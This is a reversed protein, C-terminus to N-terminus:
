NGSNKSWRARQSPARRWMVFACVTGAGGVGVKGKGRRGERGKGGGGSGGGGARQTLLFYFSPSDDRKAHQRLVCVRTVGNPLPAGQSIREGSVLDTETWGEGGAGGRCPSLFNSQNILGADRRGPELSVTVAVTPPREPSSHSPSALSIRVSYTFWPACVCVRVCVCVRQLSLCVDSTIVSQRM